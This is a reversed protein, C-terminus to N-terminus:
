AVHAFYRTCLLIDKFLKSTQMQLPNHPTIGAMRPISDCIQPRTINSCSPSLCCPSVADPRLARVTQMAERMKYEAHNLGAFCAPSCTMRFVSSALCITGPRASNLNWYHLSHCENDPVCRAVFHSSGCTGDGEFQIARQGALCHDSYQLLGATLRQRVM